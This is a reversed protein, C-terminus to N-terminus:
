NGKENALIKNWMFTVADKYDQALPSSPQYEMVSKKIFGVEQGVVARRIANPVIIESYNQLYSGLIQTSIKNKDLLTPLLFVEEFEIGMVEQFERVNELNYSLVQYGGVGCEIPTILIDTATLCAEILSNWNPSCDFMVVDFKSFLDNLRDKFVYEKRRETRLKKDLMALEVTESIYKLSPLDTSKVVDDVSAGEFLLHYLGQEKRIQNLDEVTSDQQNLLVSLSMQSDLGICLVKINHLALMRSMNFVLSSKLNGGKQVFSTIVKTSKNKKLFGFREGIEPLSGASWVRHSIKGKEVRDAKPILGKEEQNILTQKAEKIGFIKVLDNLKYESTM